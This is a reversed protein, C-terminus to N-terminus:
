LAPSCRVGHSANEIHIQAPPLDLTFRGKEPLLAALTAADGGKKQLKTRLGSVLKRIQDAASERVPERLSDHHRWDSLTNVPAEGILKTRFENLADEAEVYQGWPSRGGAAYTALFLMLLQERPSTRVVARNIEIETRRRHIVLQIEAGLRRHINERCRAMLGLFSGPRHGLEKLFLNRLPIFPVDALDIRAKAAHLWKRDPTALKTAPQSPFYFKPKLRPDEFPESVLVHTLRDTERGLLTMCAYLLTSLTKRGGAISAILRTDPNEVISRVVELIFDAVAENEQPTRIDSLPLRRHSTEDWRTFVRLDDSSPDLKLRGKLNHGSEALKERFCDWGCRGGFHRQPAFLEREIQEKGITTTLVVIQHPIAASKEQALAWITETLIAPSMGTVALLVLQKEDTLSRPKASTNRRTRATM